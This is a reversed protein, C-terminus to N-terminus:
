LAFQSNVSFSWFCMCCYHENMLIIGLNWITGAFFDIFNLQIEFHKLHRPRYQKYYYYYYLGFLSKEPKSAMRQGASIQSKDM